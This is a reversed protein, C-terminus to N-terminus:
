GPHIDETIDKAEYFELTWPDEALVKRRKDCFEDRFDPDDPSFPTLLRKATKVADSHGAISVIAVSKRWEQTNEMFRKGKSTVKVVILRDAV